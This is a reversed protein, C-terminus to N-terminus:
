LEQEDWADLTRRFRSCHVARGFGDREIVFESMARQVIM